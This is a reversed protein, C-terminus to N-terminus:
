VAGKLYQDVMKQAQEKKSLFEAREAEKRAEYSEADRANLELVHEKLAKFKEAVSPAIPENGVYGLMPLHALDALSLYGRQQAKVVAELRRNADHGQCIEWSIPQREKRSEAILRTYVEKFTMRAGVEDGVKLVAQCAGWAQAIEATWVVTDLEDRATLAIAWAEEAGPRGDDQEVGQIQAIIDAPTPVFRGRQPDKVHADFAARVVDLRHDGLARFWLATNTPNPAYNGRSLLSCVSDLLEAFVAFDQKFM